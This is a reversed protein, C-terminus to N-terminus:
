IIGMMESVIQSHWYIGLKWNWDWSFFFFFLSLSLSLCVCGIGVSQGFVRAFILLSWPHTYFTFFFLVTLYIKLILRMVPLYTSTETGTGTGTGPGPGPGPGPVYCFLVYYGGHTPYTVM